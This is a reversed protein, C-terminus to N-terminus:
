RHLRQPLPDHTSGAPHAHRRTDGSSFCSPRRGNPRTHPDHPRAHRAPVICHTPAAMASFNSASLSPMHRQPLRRHLLHLEAHTASSSSPPSSGRHTDGLLFSVTARSPSPRRPLWPTSPPAGTVACRRRHDRRSASSAVDRNPPTITSTLHANSRPTHANHTHPNKRATLVTYAGLARHANLARAHTIGHGCRAHTHLTAPM